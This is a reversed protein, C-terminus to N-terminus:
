LLGAMYAPIFVLDGESRLDKTYIIYKKGLRSSFTESFRDLSAHRQYQSSKVEIPCIKKAQRILFDIETSHRNSTSLNKSYFFLKHGSSYLMQSVINEFFMGENISLKNYLIANIIASEMSEDDDTAMMTLLGTDAMYCKLTTRDLNMKLGVNPDTANFCLNVIKSDALWMFADDYDRLRAHKGLSSLKFRKEHRSLQSPIEDFISRVKLEYGDAYKAIDDRYLRLINKQISRVDLLNNTQAFHSVVQPMGGVLMYTRFLTMIRRHLADGLPKLTNFSDRIADYVLTQDIAKLFEEFDLPCLELREEESPIVIDQVNRKISILSGTEIYDFRADAVLHKILQRAKPFLQVEDFIICSQRTYLRTNYLLELRSFFSDLDHSFNKFIELTEPSPNSFDIYIFSRYEKKAFTKALYSKGVRRAGEILMATQGQQTEKWISLKSYAKRNIHVILEGHYNVM